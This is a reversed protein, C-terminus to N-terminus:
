VSLERFGQISHRGYAAGWIPYVADSVFTGACYNFKKGDWAASTARIKGTHCDKFVVLYKRKPLLASRKTELSFSVKPTKKKGESTIIIESM